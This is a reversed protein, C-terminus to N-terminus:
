IPKKKNIVNQSALRRRDVLGYVPVSLRSIIFLSLKLKAKEICNQYRNSKVCICFQMILFLYKTIHSDLLM